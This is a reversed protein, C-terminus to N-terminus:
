IELRGALSLFAQSRCLHCHCLVMKYKSFIIGKTLSPTPSITSTDSNM